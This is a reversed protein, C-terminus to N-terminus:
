GTQHSSIHFDLCWDGVQLSIELSNLLPQCVDSNDDPSLNCPDLLCAGQEIIGAHPSMQNTLAFGGVMYETIITGTNHFGSRQAGLIPGM